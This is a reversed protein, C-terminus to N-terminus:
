NDSEIQKSPGISAIIELQRGNPLEATSIVVVDSIYQTVFQSFIRRIKQDVVIISPKEETILKDHVESLEQIINKSFEPNLM